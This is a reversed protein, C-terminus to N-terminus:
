AVLARNPAILRVLLAEDRVAVLTFILAPEKVVPADVATFPAM